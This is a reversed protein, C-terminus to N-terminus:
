PLGIVLKYYMWVNNKSNHIINLTKFKKIKYFVKHIVGHVTVAVSDLAKLTLVAIVVGVASATAATLLSTLWNDDRLQLLSKRM